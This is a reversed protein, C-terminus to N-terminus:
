VEHQGCGEGRPRVSVPGPDLCVRGEEVTVSSRTTFKANTCIFLKGCTMPFHALVSFISNEWWSGSAPCLDVVSLDDAAQLAERLLSPAHRGGRM